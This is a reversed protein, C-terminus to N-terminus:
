GNEKKKLAKITRKIKGESMKEIRSVDKIGYTRVLNGWQVSTRTKQNAGFAEEFGKQILAMKEKQADNEPLIIKLHKNGEPTADVSVLHSSM